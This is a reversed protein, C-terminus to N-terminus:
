FLSDSAEQDDYDTEDVEDCGSRGVDAVSKVAITIESEKETHCETMGEYELDIFSDGNLVFTPFSSVRGLARRIAGGTGLPETEEAYQIEMQRYKNGFHEMIIARKFGVSLVATTFGQQSLHQLMFELFPVNGIRAMPKPVDGVVNSLRTGRGGALIICSYGGM